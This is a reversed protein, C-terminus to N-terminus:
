LKGRGNEGIAAREARSAREKIKSPKDTHKDPSKQRRGMLRSLPCLCLSYGGRVVQYVATCYSEARREGKIKKGM